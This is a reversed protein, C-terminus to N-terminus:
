LRDACPPRKGPRRRCEAQRCLGPHLRLHGQLGFSACAVAPGPPAAPVAARVAAATV